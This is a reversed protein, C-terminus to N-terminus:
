QHMSCYFIFRHAFSKLFLSGVDSTVSTLVSFQLDSFQVKARKRKFKSKEAVGLMRKTSGFNRTLQTGETVGNASDNTIIGKLDSKYLKLYESEGMHLRREGTSKAYEQQQTSPQEIFLSNRLGYIVPVGPVQIGAFSENIAIFFDLFNNSM